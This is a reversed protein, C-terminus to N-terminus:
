KEIDELFKQANTREIIEAVKNSQQPDIVKFLLQKQINDWLEHEKSNIGAPEEAILYFNNKSIDKNNSLSLVTILNAYHSIEKDLTQHTKTFQLSKAGVFAGNLGICDMEFHYYLSPVSKNDIKVNTHVRNEVRTILKKKVINLFREESPVNSKQEDAPLKDILLEFLKFFKTETIDNDNILGPMSFQLIGNSYKNLYTFYQSKILSAISFMEGRHEHLEANLEKVRQEIQKAIFEVVESNQYLLHKVAKKRNDSFHIRFGNRDRLLLGIALSDGASPNPAIKIISYYTEM